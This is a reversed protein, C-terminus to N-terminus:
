AASSNGHSPSLTGTISAYSAQASSRGPFRIGNREQRPPRQGEGCGAAVLPPDHQRGSDLRNGRDYPVRGEDLQHSTLVRLLDEGVRQNTIHRLGGGMDTLWPAVGSSAVM